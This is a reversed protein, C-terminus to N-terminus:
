TLRVRPDLVSYLVDVIFNTIWIIAAYMLTVAMLVPYDKDQVTSVFYRGIGPVQYIAEIFFSGTILDALAVGAVTVVPILANPLSHRNLVLWEQLGKARATRVYDQHLVELVSSRTYRAIAAMPVIALAIAPIIIRSDFLGGWGGTPVWHLGIAFILILLTVFVYSPTSVGFVAGFMAVRDLWTNQRLASLAGLSVGASFAIVFALMGLQLSVPLFRMIVENATIGRKFSPGFDFRTVIGVLYDTYQKWLPDNVHFKADLNQLVQPPFPKDLTDWPSGPTLHIMGFVLTYVVLMSPIFTLLRRILYTRL